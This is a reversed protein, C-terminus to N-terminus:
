DSRAQKALERLRSRAADIREGLAALQQAWVKRWVPEAEWWENEPISELTSTELQDLSSVLRDVIGAVVDRKWTRDDGDVVVYVPASVAAIAVETTSKKGEARAVFWTSGRAAARHGVLATEGAQGGAKTAVVTGQELIEVRALDGFDPSMWGRAEITIPEGARVRLEEGMGKDNVSMDLLPGTTVFTRGAGLGDFWGDVSFGGPIHVYNRVAGPHDLYPYDTGAAPAIRLGLNLLDFWNRTAVQGGQAIELFDILGFPGEIALGQLTGLGDGTAHAYGSLGGQKAVAEFVKHFLLYEDPFRVPATLDLHITHGRHGTRPDEQGSVLAYIQDVLRGGQPGWGRQPFHTTAVNGMELLNAVNLDEAQAQSQMAREDSADRRPSHIHVDGSYWGRSPQDFWRVLEVTKALTEGASITIREDIMRYEIGRSAVLRYGGAPLRARYRGDVYFVLKNEVPWATEARLLYTRSRDDFKKIEVAEDSPIPMRGTADYLGVRAPMPKGDAGAVTLDLWGYPAPAPTQYSREVRVDCITVPKPPPGFGFAAAQAAIMLDTGYDGRDALRARALSLEVVHAPQEPLNPLTVLEHGLGDSKDYAILLPGGTPQYVELELTVTEDLDFGYENAVDLDFQTGRLCRKGDVAVVAGASNVATVGLNNWSYSASVVRAIHENHWDLV